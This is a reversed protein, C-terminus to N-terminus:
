RAHNLGGEQRAAWLVTEAIVEPPLPSDQERNIDHLTALLLDSPVNMRLLKFAARAVAKRRPDPQTRERRQVTIPAARGADLGWAATEKAAALDLVNGPLADTLWRIAEADSFGAKYQIGGLLRAMDRLRYHKEGDRANRVRDLAADIFAETDADSAAERDAAVPAPRPPPILAAAAPVEVCPAGPLDAIRNPLHDVRGVFEPAATYIPQATRFTCPDVPYTRLWYGLEEGTTARSLWFALRLRLGPKIGHSATAVAICRIGHFAQPLRQIAAQACGILDHPPVNEPREVGDMDLLCWWHPVAALTPIDGTEPDPYALRRVRKTRKPDAVAGFVVACSPKGLLLRLLAGLADLDPAPMTFLDLTRANDYADTTGDAHIRKALRLFPSRIVTITDPATKKVGAPQDAEM